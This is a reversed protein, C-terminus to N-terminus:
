TAFMALKRKLEMKQITLIPTPEVVSTGEPLEEAVERKTKIRTIILIGIFIIIAIGFIIALVYLIVQVVPFQEKVQYIETKKDAYLDELRTGERVCVILDGKILEKIWKKNQGQVFDLKWQGNTSNCKLSTLEIKAKEMIETHEDMRRILATLQYNKVCKPDFPRKTVDVKICAGNKMAKCTSLLPVISQCDFEKSCEISTLKGLAGIETSLRQGELLDKEGYWKTNNCTVKKNMPYRNNIHMKAAPDICSYSECPGPKYKVRTSDFCGECAPVCGYCMNFDIDFRGNLIADATYGVFEINEEPSDTTYQLSFKKIETDSFVINQLSIQTVSKDTLFTFTCKRGLKTPNPIHPIHYIITVTHSSIVKDEWMEAPEEMSDWSQMCELKMRAFFFTVEGASKMNKDANAFISIKWENKSVPHIIVGHECTHRPTEAYKLMAESNTMDCNGPVFCTDTTCASWDVEISNPLRFQIEHKVDETYGVYRTPKTDSHYILLEFPSDETSKAFMTDRLYKTAVKSKLTHSCSMENSTVAPAHSTLDFDDHATPTVAVSPNSCAFSLKDDIWNLVIRKPQGKSFVFISWKNQFEISIMVAVTCNKPFHAPRLQSDIRDDCMGPVFCLKEKCSGWDILSPEDSSSQSILFFILLPLLSS